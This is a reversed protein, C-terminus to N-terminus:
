RSPAPERPQRRDPGAGLPSLFHRSTLIVSHSNRGQSQRQYISDPRQHQCLSGLPPRQHRSAATWVVAATPGKGGTNALLGPTRPCAPYRLLGPSWTHPTCRQHRSACQSESAMIVRASQSAHSYSNFTVCVSAATQWSTHNRHRPPRLFTRRRDVRRGPGAVQVRPGGADEDRSGDRCGRVSASQRASHYRGAM